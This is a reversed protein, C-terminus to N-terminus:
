MLENSIFSGNLFLSWIQGRFQTPICGTHLTLMEKLKEADPFKSNVIIEIELYYDISKSSKIKTSNFSKSNTQITSSPEAGFVDDLFNDMSLSSEQVSSNTSLKNTAASITSTDNIPKAPTVTPTIDDLWSLFDTDMNSVKHSTPIIPLNSESFFEINNNPSVISAEKAVPSTNNDLFSDFDDDISSIAAPKTLDKGSSKKSVPLKTGSATVDNLFDDFDFDESKSM